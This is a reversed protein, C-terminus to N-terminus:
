VIHFVIKSHLMVYVYIDIHRMRMEQQIGLAVFM